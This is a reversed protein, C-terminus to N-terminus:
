IRYINIIYTYINYLIIFFLFFSGVWLTACVCVSFCICSWPQPNRKEYFDARCYATSLIKPAVKSNCSAVRNRKVKKSPYLLISKVKDKYITSYKNWAKFATPHPNGWFAVQLGCGAVKTASENESRKLFYASLFLSHLSFLSNNWPNEKDKDVITFYEWFM